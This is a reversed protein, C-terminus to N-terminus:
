KGDIIVYRLAYVIIFPLAAYVLAVGLFLAFSDPLCIWTWTAVTAALVLVIYVMVGVFRMFSGIIGCALEVSQEICSQGDIHIHLEIPPRNHHSTSHEM